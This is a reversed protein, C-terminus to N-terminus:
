QSKEVAARAEAPLEDANAWQSLQLARVYGVIAWRDEVDIRNGQPYMAGFGRTIVQFIHEDRAGRLRDQHFTPPRQFGRQVIIGQGTGARDHCPSCFIDYREKGRELHERTLKRPPTRALQDIALQGRAVTGPIPARSSRGDGFFDSAEYPEYRPQDQMDRHCAALLLLAAFIMRKM